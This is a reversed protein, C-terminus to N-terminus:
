TAPLLATPRAMDVGGWQMRRVIARFGDNQVHPGQPRDWYEIIVPIDGQPLLAETSRRIATPTQGKYMLYRKMVDYLSLGAQNTLFPNSQNSNVPVHAIGGALATYTKVGNLLYVLINNIAGHYVGNFVNDVTALHLAQEHLYDVLRAFQDTVSPTFRITPTVTDFGLLVNMAPSGTYSIYTQEAFPGTLRFRGGADLEFRYASYITSVLGAVDITAGGMNMAEILDQPTAYDRDLVFNYTNTSVGGENHLRIEWYASLDTEIYSLSKMSDVSFRTVHVLWDDSRDLINTTDKVTIRAKQVTDTDNYYSANVYFHDASLLADAM